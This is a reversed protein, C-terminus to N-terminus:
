RPGPPTGDAPFPREARVRQRIRRDRDHAHHGLMAIRAGEADQARIAATVTRHDAFTDTFTGAAEPTRWPASTKVQADLTHLFAAVTRNHAAQRVTDHWANLSRRIEAPDDLSEAHDLHADLRALDVPGRRLAASAAATADLVAQTEFLELMEEDSRLRLAFGRRTPVLLGDRELLALAERVPTRSVAFEESLALPVLSADPPYYGSTLRHKLEDHVTDRTSKM